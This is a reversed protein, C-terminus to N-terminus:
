QKSFQQYSHEVRSATHMTFQKIHSVSWIGRALLFELKEWQTAASAGTGHVKGKVHAVVPQRLGRVM